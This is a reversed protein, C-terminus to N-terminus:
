DGQVRRDGEYGYAMGNTSKRQERLSPGGSQRATVAMMRAGASLPLIVLQIPLLKEHLRANKRWNIRSQGAGPRPSGGRRPVSVM